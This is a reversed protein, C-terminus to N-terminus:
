DGHKAGERARYSGPRSGAAPRTVELLGREVLKTLAYGCPKNSVGLAASLTHQGWEGPHERVHYWVLKDLPSLGAFAAPDFAPRPDPRPKAAMRAWAYGGPFLNM